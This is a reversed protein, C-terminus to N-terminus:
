GALIVVGTPARRAAPILAIREDGPTGLKDNAGSEPARHKDAGSTLHVFAATM